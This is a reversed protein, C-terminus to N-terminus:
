CLLKAAFTIIIEREALRKKVKTHSVFIFGIIRM